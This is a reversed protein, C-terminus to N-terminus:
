RDPWGDAVVFVREREPGDGDRLSLMVPHAAGVRFHDRLSAILDGLRVPEADTAPALWHPKEAIVGTRAGCEPLRDLEGHRLWRGRLHNPALRPPADNPEDGDIHAFIIGKVMAERVEVDPRHVRSAPLQRDFLKAIKAEFSDSANPGPYQSPRHEPHYLFFKVATECHTLRGFEDRYLFDLEGVTRTGDRLQVGVGVMTVERVHRLWFHVLHEFYRGVRATPRGALFRALAHGDIQDAGIRRPAAVDPGTVLSPTNVAWLLDATARAARPEPEPETM